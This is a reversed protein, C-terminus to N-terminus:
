HTKCMVHIHALFAKVTSMVVFIDTPRGGSKTWDLPLMTHIPLGQDYRYQLADARDSCSTGVQWILSYQVRNRRGGFIM